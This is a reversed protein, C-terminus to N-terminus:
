GGRESGSSSRRQKEFACLASMGFEMKRGIMM